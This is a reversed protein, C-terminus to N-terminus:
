ENSVVDQKQFIKFRAILNDERWLQMVTIWWRHRSTHTKKPRAMLTAKALQCVSQLVNQM